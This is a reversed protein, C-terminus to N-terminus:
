SAVELATFESVGGTSSETWGSAVAASLRLRYGISVIRLVLCTRALKQARTHTLPAHNSRQQTGDCAYGMVMM